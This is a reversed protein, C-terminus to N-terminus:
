LQYPEVKIIKLNLCKGRGVEEESKPGYPFCVQFSIFHPYILSLRKTEFNFFGWYDVEDTEQRNDLTVNPVVELTVTRIEEPKNGYVSALSPVIGFHEYCPKRGGNFTATTVFTNPIEV